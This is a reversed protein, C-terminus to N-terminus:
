APSPEATGSSKRTYHEMWRRTSACKASPADEDQDLHKVAVQAAPEAVDLGVRPGCGVITRRLLVDSLTGTMEERFAWIVEAGILATEISEIPSLPLSSSPRTKM